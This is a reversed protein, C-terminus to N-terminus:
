GLETVWGLHLFTPTDVGPPSGAGFMPWMLALVTVVYLGAVAGHRLGLAGLVSLVARLWRRLPLSATRLRAAVLFRMM